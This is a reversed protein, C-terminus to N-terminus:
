TQVVVMPLVESAAPIHLIWDAPQNCIRLLPCSLLRLPFLYYSRSHIPHYLQHPEDQWLFAPQRHLKQIEQKSLSTHLVSDPGSYLGIKAVYRICDRGNATHNCQEAHYAGEVYILSCVRHRLCDTNKGLLPSEKRLFCFATEPRHLLGIPILRGDPLFTRCKGGM